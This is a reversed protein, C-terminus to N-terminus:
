LAREKNDLETSKNDESEKDSDPVEVQIVRKPKRDKISTIKINNKNGTALKSM